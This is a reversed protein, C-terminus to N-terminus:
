SCERSSAMTTPLSQRRQFTTTTATTGLVHAAMLELPNRDLWNGNEHRKAFRQLCAVLKLGQLKADDRCDSRTVVAAVENIRSRWTEVLDDTNSRLANKLRHHDHPNKSAEEQQLPHSHLPHYSAETHEALFLLLTFGNELVDYDQDFERLLSFITHINEKRMAVALASRDQRRCLELIKAFHRFMQRSSCGTEALKDFLEEVVLSSASSVVSSPTVVPQAFTQVHSRPAVHLGSSSSETVVSSTQRQREADIRGVAEALTALNNPRQHMIPGASSPVSNPQSPGPVNHLPSFQPKVANRPVPMNQSPLIAVMGPQLHPMNPLSSQVNQGVHQHQASLKTREMTMRRAMDLLSQMLKRKSEKETLEVWVKLGGRVRRNVKQLFRGQRQPYLRTVLLRRQHVNMDSYGSVNSRLLERFRVNGTHHVTRGGRCFLIDLETPIVEQVADGTWEGNSESRQDTERSDRPNSLLLPPDNHTDDEEQIATSPNSGGSADM